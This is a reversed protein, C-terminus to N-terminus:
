DASLHQFRDTVLETTCFAPRASSGSVDAVGLDRITTFGRM